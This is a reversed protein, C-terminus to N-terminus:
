KFVRGGAWLTLALHLGGKAQLVARVAVTVRWCCLIDRGLGPFLWHQGANGVVCTHLPVSTPLALISVGTESVGDM